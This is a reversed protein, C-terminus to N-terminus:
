EVHEWVSTPMREIRHQYHPDSERSKVARAIPLTQYTRNKWHLWVNAEPDGTWRDPHIRYVVRYVYETAMYSKKGNM